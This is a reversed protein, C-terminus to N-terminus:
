RRGALLADAAARAQDTLTAGALMRGIEDRRAADDLREVTTAIRDGGDKRVRLHTRGQAAVQPSHTVVLVQADHSLLALREGVAAATAGGIGADVEDFVLTPVPDAHALVVKLALMVRALEGGSAVKALPGPSSGPNAAILFRVADIGHPGPATEDSTVETVFRAKDLRLPPLEAGVRADLDKAAAHRARSLAHAATLAAQRAAAERRALAALGDAGLDLADLRARMEDRLAPLGDVAVGHKRALARLAFLREELSEAQAPDLDIDAALPELQAEAETLEIRARELAALAPDLRGGADAAARELARAAASMPSEAHALERRATEIAEILKGSHQLIRRREALTEEEGPQPDLVELEDAAHRLFDEEARARSLGAEAAAFSEKAAQWAAHTEATAAVLAPPVGFADLLVRHTGPNLLGQAEFQGHVEVLADGLARLLAVGVPQDNVFAKGRGDRAVTRRLVLPEDAPASLGQEALMAWVAHGPPPAFAASVSLREAGARVMAAEGRGGLALGLADLLISKGAGTEGTLVTLGAQFSLDLREILVVDRISLSVLM